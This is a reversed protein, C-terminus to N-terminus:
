VSKDTKATPAAIRTLLGSLDALAEKGAKGAGRRLHLAQFGAAEAGRVDNELSDGVHLISGPPLGFGAAAQDFLVRAPKAAGAECSIITAEFYDELHLRRLLPRLREDWNSIIGLRFGRAALADLTPRVEDFVHWTAPQTFCEYLEPFFTASPPAAALGHFVEDVLEEWGARAHNFHRRTRWADRFRAQLLDPTVNAIGHRAAVEAYVHGVSPWPTMLTGGVDFTVAQVHLTL